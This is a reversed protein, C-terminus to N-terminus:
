RGLPYNYGRKDGAGPARAALMDERSGGRLRGQAEGSGGRLRGQAEGSGPDIIALGEETTKPGDQLERPGHQPKRPGDQAARPGDQATKPAEERGLLGRPGEWVRGPPRRYASFGEFAM